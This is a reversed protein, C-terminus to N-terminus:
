RYSNAKSGHHLYDYAPPSCVTNSLFMSQSILYHLLALAASLPISYWFPLQLWYTSSQNGRPYTVRLPKKRSAYESWEHAGLQATYIGNYMFYSIKSSM